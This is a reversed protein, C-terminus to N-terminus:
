GLRPTALRSCRARRAGARHRDGDPHGLGERADGGGVVALFLLAPVAMGGVAAIAPLAAARRDRLEGTTFERKIEIGVVLFFITMLGENVWFRLDSGVTVDGIRLTAPTHWLSVYGAQWPSNAWLMSVVIAGFLM